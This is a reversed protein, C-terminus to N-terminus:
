HICDHSIELFSAIQDIVESVGNSNLHRHIRRVHTIHELVQPRCTVSGHMADVHQTPGCLKYM